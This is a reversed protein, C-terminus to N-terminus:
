QPDSTYSKSVKNSQKLLGLTCTYIVMQGMWWKTIIGNFNGESMEEWVTVGRKLVRRVPM